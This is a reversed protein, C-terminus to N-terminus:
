AVCKVQLAISLITHNMAKLQVILARKDVTLKPIQRKPLTQGHNLIFCNSLAKFFLLTSGFLM